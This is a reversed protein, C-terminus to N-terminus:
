CCGCWEGCLDKLSAVMGKFSKVKAADKPNIEVRVGQDTEEFKLEFNEEFFDACQSACEAGARKKSTTM